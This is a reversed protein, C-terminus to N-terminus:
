DKLKVMVLDKQNVMVMEMRMEMAIVKPTVMATESHLYIVRLLDTKSAKM